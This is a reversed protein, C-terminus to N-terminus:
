AVTNTVITTIGASLGFSPRAHCRPALRPALRPAYTSSADGGALLSIPALPSALPSAGVTFDDEWVTLVIRLEDAIASAGCMDYNTRFRAGDTIDALVTPAKNYLSGSTWLDSAEIAKQRAEKSNQLVRSLVQTLSFIAVEDKTEVGIGLPRHVPMVLRPESKCAVTIASKVDLFTAIVAQAKRSTVQFVPVATPAGRALGGECEALIAKVVKCTLAMAKGVMTETMYNDGHMALIEESIIARLTNTMLNDAHVTPAAPQQLEEEQEQEKCEPYYRHHSGIRTGRWGCKCVESM